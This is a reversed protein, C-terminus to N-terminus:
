AARTFDARDLVQDLGGSGVFEWSAHTANHITMSGYGYNKGDRHASWAPLPKEWSDYLGEHNGGTGVTFYLPGSNDVKGKYIRTCREYAHVHGSFVVDVKYQHFIQNLSLSLSLTLPCKSLDFFVFLVTRRSWM